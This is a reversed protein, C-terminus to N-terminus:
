MQPIEIGLNENRLSIIKILDGIRYRIFTGGSFNTVVFEYKEGAQVEDLLVAKPQYGPEERSRLHEAEPIFELFGTDPVFTMGTHDWTQTAIFNIETGGYMEIPECGWYYKIKQRYVATDTGASIIGKMEWLDAPIMPRKALRSRILGRILRSLVAPHLMNKSLKMNRSSDSFQDGIRVLVSGLGFFVSLGERLALEFGKATREQFSMKEAEEVTPMFRFPFEAVIGYPLMGSIFPPPAMAYLFRDDAELPFDGRKKACSFVISALALRTGLELFRKPYPAWKFNQGKTRGSTRIWYDPKEPLGAVNKSDLYDAYDEYTTLPVRERFEEVSKPPTEGLIKQGLECRSQLEVQEMLLRKQIEMFQEMNLDIFGCYKRWIENTRGERLLEIATPM